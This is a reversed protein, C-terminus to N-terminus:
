PPGMSVEGAREGELRSCTAVTERTCTDPKQAAVQPVLEQVAQSMTLLAQTGSDWLATAFLNVGPEPAGHTCPPLCHGGGTEGQVVGVQTSEWSTGPTRSGVRRCTAPSPSGGSQPM